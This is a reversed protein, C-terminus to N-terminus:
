PRTKLSIMQTHKLSDLHATLHSPRRVPLEPTDNDDLLLDKRCLLCGTARESAEDGVDIDARVLDALLQFSCLGADALMSVFNFIFDRRQHQSVPQLCADVLLIGDQSADYQELEADVSDAERGAGDDDERKNAEGDEEKDEQENDEEEEDDKSSDERDLV